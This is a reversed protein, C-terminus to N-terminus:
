MRERSKEKRDATAFLLLTGALAMGIGALLMERVGSKLLQGGAFNGASCGLSYAATIFAQGKVMDSSRVRAKAYYVQVPALNGYTVVHLLQILYIDLINKALYFCIAKILFAIAAMKLLATDRTVCRIREFFFIAAAAALIADKGLNPASGHAKQVNSSDGGLQTVIAILYNETMAHFMGLFGIGLLSLCYIPYRSFFTLVSCHEGKRGETPQARSIAPYGAFSLISAFRAAVLFLLMGIMGMRAIVFGLVLSSVATAVAGFARAVGYNVPYGANDYAVSLGNLLPVAADSCWVGLAYVVAVVTIPLGPVMQVLLCGSCLLSLLLILKTLAAGRSRDAYAALLPQTMCSCLGALALLIGVVGSSIGRRLLYTTAFSAIGSSAAWYTFQTISYRLTLNKMFRDREIGIPDIKMSGMLHM